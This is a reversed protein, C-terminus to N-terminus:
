QNEPIKLASFSAFVKNGIGPLSNKAKELLRVPFHFKVFLPFIPLIPVYASAVPATPIPVEATAMAIPLYSYM